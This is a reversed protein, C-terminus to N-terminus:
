AFLHRLVDQYSGDSLQLVEPIGIAYGEWPEQQTFIPKRERRPYNVSRLVGRSKQILYDDIFLQWHPSVDIVEPAPSATGPVQALLPGITTSAIGGILAQRRTLARRRTFGRTTRDPM